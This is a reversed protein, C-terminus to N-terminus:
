EPWEAPQISTRFRSEICPAFFVPPPPTEDGEPQAIIIQELPEEEVFIREIFVSRVSTAAATFRGLVIEEPDEANSLNGVLAAPLPANFGSNNDILDKLTKYYRYAEESLSFQQLEVLINRKTFLAIDAVPLQSILLGDSFEDSFINIKDSYRIQWCPEECTYTYRNLRIPDDDVTSPPIVICEGNRLVTGNFCERCYILREFSRYQWFYYNDTGAPDPIDVSIAHGPIFGEYEESFLLEPDYEVELNSIPVSSRVTEPRSRYEKGGPMIVRLEWTEGDVAFFEEPPLYTNDIEILPVNTGTSSNVFIVSAGSVPRNLNVGFERASVTIRAFSSGPSTGALAEIYPLGLFYEFEPEVPDVCSLQSIFLLLPLLVRYIIKRFCHRM